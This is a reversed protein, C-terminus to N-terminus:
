PEIIVYDIVRTDLVNTSLITFSTNAVIASVSVDGLNLTGTRATILIKCTGTADTTSVTVTGGVLTASGIRKVRTDAGSNPNYSM